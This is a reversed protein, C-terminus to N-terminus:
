QRLHACKLYQVTKVQKIDGCAFIAHHYYLAFVWQCNHKLADCYMM